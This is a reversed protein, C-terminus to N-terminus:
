TTYFIHHRKTFRFPKFICLSIFHVISNGFIFYCCSHRCIHTELHVTSLLRNTKVLKLKCNGLHQFTLEVSPTTSFDVLSQWSGMYSRNLYNHSLKGLKLLNLKHINCVHQQQINRLVSIIIQQQIKSCDCSNSRLNSYNFVRIM